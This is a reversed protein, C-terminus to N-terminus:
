VALSLTARGLIADTVEAVENRQTPTLPLLPSRVLGNGWGRHAMAAKVTQPQGYRRALERFTFWGRHLHIASNADGSTAARYTALNPSLV